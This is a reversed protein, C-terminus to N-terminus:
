SATGGFTNTAWAGILQLQSISLQTPYIHWAYVSCSFATGAVTAGGLVLATNSTTITISTSSVFLPQNYVWIYPYTLGTNYTITGAAVVKVPGSTPAITSVTTTPANGVVSQYFPGASSGINLLPTTAIMAAFTASATGASNLVLVSTNNLPTYNASAAATLLKNGTTFVVPFGLGGAQAPDTSGGAGLGLSPGLIGNQTQTTRADTWATVSAGGTVGVRCDYVASPSCPPLYSNLLNQNGGLFYFLQNLDYYTPNQVTELFGGPVTM